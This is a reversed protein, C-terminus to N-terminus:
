IAVSEESLTGSWSGNAAIAAELAIKQAESLRMVYVVVYGPSAGGAKGTIDSWEYGDDAVAPRFADNITGTGIEPCTVFGHYTAM